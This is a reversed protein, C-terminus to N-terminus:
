FLMKLNKKAGSINNFYKEINLSIYLYKNINLIFIKFINGLKEQAPAVNRNGLASYLTPFQFSV